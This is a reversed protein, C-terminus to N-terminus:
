SASSRAQRASGRNSPRLESRELRDPDLGVWVRRERAPEGRGLRAVLLAFADLEREDGRELV